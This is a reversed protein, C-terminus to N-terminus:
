PLAGDRRALYITQVTDAALLPTEFSVREARATAFAAALTQTFADDPPDNSWLAFVGGPLLHQALKTLGPVSYFPAHSPHLVNSPSHDIDLLIAHFRAGPRRPDFGTEPQAALAFFDGHVFRCRRDASLDRGLPLLAKEHWGIVPALAEVVLLEGLKGSQLAAQATYGLGLGGVVVQLDGRDLEGLGLEALAVESATFQSSMLFDDDLKIEFIDTGDSLNRRRRLSLAGIPTPCYDLEEFLSSM